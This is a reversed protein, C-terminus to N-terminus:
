MAINALTSINPVLEGAAECEYSLDGEPRGRDSNVQPGGGGAASLWRVVARQFCRQTTPHRQIKSKMKSYFLQSSCFVTSFRNIVIAPPGGM